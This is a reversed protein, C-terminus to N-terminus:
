NNHETVNKVRIDNFLIMPHDIEIEKRSFSLEVTPKQWDPNLAKMRWAYAWQSILNLDHNLDTSVGANTYLPASTM